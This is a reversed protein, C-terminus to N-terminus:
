PAYDEVYEADSQELGAEREMLQGWFEAQHITDTRPHYWYEVSGIRCGGRLRVSRLLPEFDTVRISTPLAQIHDVECGIAAPEIRLQTASM